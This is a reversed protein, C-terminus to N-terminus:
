PIVERVCRFGIYDSWYDPELGYRGSVRANRAGINWSGGRLVRFQGSAPGQPDETRSGGYYRDDYWDQVLEWVNGHMDYLGWANPQKQGVIHTQSGSNRDYWGMQDLNGAYSGATGARAAYEWEAETPLRYRNGDGRANLKRLFEQVDNWSVQEVPLQEGKFPSPNAGMVAEWQQQTVEYKGLDFPKTIRVRHAPKEDDFCDNDGPSCGMMFEGPVIRVFEMRIGRALLSSSVVPVDVIVPVPTAETRSVEAQQSTRTPDVRSSLALYVGIVTVLLLAARIWLLAVDNSKPIDAVTQKLQNM